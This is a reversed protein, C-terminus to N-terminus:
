IIPPCVICMLRAEGKGINKFYHRVSSDFYVTSGSRLNYKEEGITVEVEGDLVYIFKDVGSKTEEPATQSDKKITILLPIIKKNRANAILLESSFSRDHIGVVHGITKEKIELTRKSSPLPQYLEPLTTGLAKAIREHGKVPGMMKGNEIRSLSGLAVGSKKSLELLTMKQEKRLKKIIVGVHVNNEGTKYLIYKTKLKTM